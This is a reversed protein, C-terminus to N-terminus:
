PLQRLITECLKYQRENRYIKKPLNLFLAYKDKAKKLDKELIYMITKWYYKIARLSIHNVKDIYKNFNYIDNNNLCMIAVNVYLVQQSLLNFISIRNIKKLVLDYKNEIILQHLRKYRIIHIITSIFLLIVFFLTLITKYWNPVYDRTLFYIFKYVFWLTLIILIIKIKKNM